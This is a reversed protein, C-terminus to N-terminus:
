RRRSSLENILREAEEAGGPTRLLEQIRSTKKAYDSNIASTASAEQASGQTSPEIFTTATRVRARALEAMDVRQPAIRSPAAAAVPPAAPKALARMAQIQTARPMGALWPHNDILDAEDSPTLSYGQLHRATEIAEEQSATLRSGFAAALSQMRAAMQAATVPANPDMGEIIRPDYSEAAMYHPTVPPTYGNGTASAELRALREATKRREEGLRNEREGYKRQWEKLEADKAALAAEFQAQADAPPAAAPTAPTEPAQVGPQESGTSQRAYEDNRMIKEAVYPDLQVGGDESIYEAEKLLASIRGMDARGLALDEPKRIGAESLKEKVKQDVAVDFAFKQIQPDTAM